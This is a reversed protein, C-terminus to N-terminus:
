RSTLAKMGASLISLDSGVGMFSFGMGIASQIEAENRLFIGAIRNTSQCAQIVRRCAEIFAPHETQGHIGMAHTLDSPGIFLVDVGDVAAIEEANQVATPTEIQVVLVTEPLISERYSPFDLGFGGARIAGSMGRLGEPAYRCASVMARAQDATDVHPVVIGYAGLDLARGIAVPDHSGVRVLSRTPGGSLAQLMHLLTHADGIGHELDIMVWDFGALGAMEAVVESGSSLFIGRSPCDAHLQSKFQVM